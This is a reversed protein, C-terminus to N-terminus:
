RTFLNAVIIVLPAFYIVWGFIRLALPPSAEAVGGGLWGITRVTGIRDLRDLPMWIFVVGAIFAVLFMAPSGGSTAGYGTFYQWYGGLFFFYLYFALLPFFIAIKWIRQDLNQLKEKQVTQIFVEDFKPDKLLPILMEEDGM